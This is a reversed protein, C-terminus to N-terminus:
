RHKLAFCDGGIQLRSTSTYSEDKSGNPCSGTWGNSWSRVGDVPLFFSSGSASQEWLSFAPTFLSLTPRRLHKVRQDPEGRRNFESLVNTDLPFGNM